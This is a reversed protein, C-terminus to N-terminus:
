VTSRITASCNERDMAAARLYWAAASTLDGSSLAAHGLEAVEGSDLSQCSATESGALIICLCLPVVSLQCKRM